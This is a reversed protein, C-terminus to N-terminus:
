PSKGKLFDAYSVGVDNKSLRSSFTPIGQGSRRVRKIGDMKRRGTFPQYSLLTFGKGSCGACVVGVSSDSPDRIIGFGECTGCAVILEHRKTKGAM